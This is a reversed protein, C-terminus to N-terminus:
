YNFLIKKKLIQFSKSLKHKLKLKRVEIILMTKLCRLLNEFKNLSFYCINVLKIFFLLAVKNTVQLLTKYM